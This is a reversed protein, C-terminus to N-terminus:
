VPWRMKQVLPHFGFVAKKHYEGLVYVTKGLALAAGVEVWAGRYDLDEEDIFVLADASRVADIDAAAEERALVEDSEFPPYEWWKRTITFNHPAAELATALEAARAGNEFKTALYIKM